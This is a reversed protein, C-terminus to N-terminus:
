VSHDRGVGGPLQPSSAARTELLRWVQPLGGITLSLPVNHGLPQGQRPRSCSRRSARLAGKGGAGEGGVGTRGTSGLAALSPEADRGRFVGAGGAGQKRDRGRAPGLRARLGRGRLEAAPWSGPLHTLARASRVENM